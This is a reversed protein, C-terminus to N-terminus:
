QRGRAAIAAGSESIGIQKFTAALAQQVEAETLARPASGGMGVIRGSGGASALYALEHRAADQVREILKAEDLAGDKLPPQKIQAEFLRDRTVPLLEENAALTASVLERTRALMQGERLRAAEATRSDAAERLQANQAELADIRTQLEELTPMNRTEQVVAPRRAAEAFQTLIKGGAGPTTVFDISEGRVIKEIIPGSRGEAEGQKAYGAAIISLGIDPALDAVKRAYGEYVKADAYMGPGAPGDARWAPTSVTKAALFDLDREPRETAETLTPHNWYMKTGIPFAGPIDRQLVSEAYYGSSGWGPAIIKIPITGDDKVAKEILPICDGTLDVAAPPLDESESLSEPVPEYTTVPRVATPMGLSVKGDVDVAFTVEYLANRRSGYEGYDYVGYVCHDDWMDQIWCGHESGLMARIADQVAQSHEGFSRWAEHMKSPACAMELMTASHDHIQRLKTANKSNLAKGAETFGELWGILRELM